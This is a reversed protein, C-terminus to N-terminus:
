QDQSAGCGATDALASEFSTDFSYSVTAGGDVSSMADSWCGVSDGGAAPDINALEEPTPEGEGAAPGLNNLFSATQQQTLFPLGTITVSAGTTGGSFAGFTNFIDEQDIPDIAGFFFLGLDDLDPFHQFKSELFDFQGATIIGGTNAPTITGFPTVYTSNTADYLAPQGPEFLAGNTLEVFFSSQGDFRQEGLTGEYQDLPDNDILTVGEGDFNIGIRGDNFNNGEGTLDVEVNRFQAHIDNDSLTNGSLIVEGGDLSDVFVGVDESDSVNNGDITIFDMGEVEIGNEGSNTVINDVIDVTFVPPEFSPGESSGFLIKEEDFFAFSEASVEIGEDGVNSVTNDAIYVDTVGQVNIGDDLVNNVTNNTVDASTSLYYESYYPKEAVLEQSLFAFEGYYDDDYDSTEIFGTRIHIGDEQNGDITYPEPGDTPATLGINTLNNGDVVVNGSDLIQIGDDEVLNITNGSVTVSTGSNYVYESDYDYDYDYGEEGYFETYTDTEVSSNAIVDRVHIGDAGWIDAGGYYGGLIGSGVNSIVNDTISTRNFGGYWISSAKPGYFGDTSTGLVEIGDDGTVDIVNERIIIADRVGQTFTEIETYIETLEDYNSEYDYTGANDSVGRVHIGDAGFGDPAGYYGEFYVIEGESFFVGVDSINNGEILTRGTPIGYGYPGESLIGRTEYYDDDDYYEDFTSIVEIGDDATDNIINNRIVVAYDEFGEESIFGGESIAQIPGNYYGFGGPVNRVHIGDAGYYDGGGYYYDDGSGANYIENSDILVSQSNSVEIGDDATTDIYNGIIEVAYGGYYDGEGGGANGALTTSQILDIDWIPRRRQELGVGSVSIGDAGVNSTYLGGFGYGANYIENYQILASQSNLVEIGDDDVTDIYNDTIEVAFDNGYGYGGAGAGAFSEVEWPNRIIRQSNYVGRVHIGDAGYGDGEYISSGNGANRVDNGIILTRGTGITGEEFLAVRDERFFNDGVVEIGDDATTNVINGDIVVAYSEFGNGSPVGAGAEASFAVDFDDYDYVEGSVNRVYIGDAGYYDGSGYDEDAGYGANSVINDKILTSSSNTVEIGDDGTTDVTNGIIDVAYGVYNSEGIPGEYDGANGANGIWIPGDFENKYVNSVKIGDHSDHDIDTILVHEGIIETLPEGSWDNGESTWLDERGNGPGFPGSTFLDSFDIAGSITSDEIGAQYVYNEQGDEEGGILVRDSGSVEIGDGGTYKVTNGQIVVSYEGDDYYYGDGANGALLQMMVAPEGGENEGAYVNEVLIGDGDSWELDFSPTEDVILEAIAFAPIADGSILAAISNVDAAVSEGVGAMFIDNGIIQTKGSEHVYIGNEGTVAIENGTIEVSGEGTYEVPPPGILFMAPIDGERGGDVNEVEIGDEGILALRNDYIGTYNGNKVKIGDTLVSSVRNGYIESELINSVLIGNAEDVDYGIHGVTNNYIYTNAGLDTNVMVHIGDHKTFAVNNGYIDSDADSFAFGAGDGSPLDGEYGGVNRVFIGDAGYEDANDEGFGAKFVTNDYISAYGGNEVSIGDDGTTDIFNNSVWVTGFWEGVGEEGAQQVHIGDFAANSIMNGTVVNNTGGEIRVGDNGVTDIMNGSVLVDSSPNVLIGNAVTNMVTNGTIIASNSNAVHIGDEGINNAGDNTGVFNDLVQIGTSDIIGIGDGGTSDVTNNSVINGTTTVPARNGAGGIQIGEGATNTVTNGDILTNNSGEIHIGSTYWLAANERGTDNVTNNTIEYGDSYQSYIGLRDAGDITNDDIIGDGTHDLIAISSAGLTNYIENGTITMFGTGRTVNIGDFGADYITNNTVDTTGANEFLYISNSGTGTTDGITNDDITVGDTTRVTLIGWSYGDVTNGAINHGGENDIRIGAISGTTAINSVINDTVQSDASNIIQIGNTGTNTVTNGDVVVSASPNVLIGNATTNAVTNGSVLANNSGSVHIGDEGINGAAGDTGVSNDAIEVGESNLAFIGDSATTDIDNNVIETGTLGDIIIGRNGADDISNGDITANNSGNIVAIGSAGVRDIDNGEITVGTSNVTVWVGDRAIDSITNGEVTADKSNVLQVGNNFAADANNQLTNDKIVADDSNHVQVGDGGINGAGGTTGVLNNAIVLGATNDANIGSGFNNDQLTNDITNNNIVNVGTVDFFHIGNGGINEFGGNQGILNNQATNDAGGAVYIGDLGTNDITNAAVVVGSSPNVLVGNEGVNNVKNALVVTGNSGDVFIGNQAANEIDNNSIVGNTSDSVQVGNKGITGDLGIENNNVVLGSGSNQVLIGNLATNDIKNSLVTLDNTFLARIGNGMAVGNINNGHLLVTDSPGGVFIGSMTVDDIDNGSVETNTVSELRVGDWEMNYITNDEVTVDDSNVVQVGSGIDGATSTTNTIENDSVEIDSGGGVFIGDGNINNAGGNLGIQNDSVEIDTSDIVNIGNDGTGDIINASVLVDETGDLLIGVDTEVGNQGTITNNSVLTGSGDFIEIGGDFGTKITNGSVVSNGGINKYSIAWHGNVDGNNSNDLVNNIVDVNLSGSVQVSEDDTDEILNDSVEVNTSATVLVGDGSGLFGVFTGTALPHRQGHIYNNSVTVNNAGEVHVGVEGGDVEFGDITVNDATVYFGPSNPSIISEAGRGADDGALGANAGELTLEKDVTVSENYTGAAVSVTAGSAAVDVADNIEADDNLVSVMTATGTIVGTGDIDAGLDIENAHLSAGGAGLTVDAVITIKGNDSSADLSGGNTVIGAGDVYIDNVADLVVTLAGATSVIGGGAAGKFVIQDIAELTLTADGGASKNIETYIEINGSGSGGPSGVTTVYVNTGADLSAEINAVNLTSVGAGGDPRFQDIIGGTGLVENDAGDIIHLDRPDIYWLGGVVDADVNIYEIGSTEIFGGEGTGSADYRGRVIAANQAIMNIEGGDGNTGAAEFESTETAQINQGKVDIQGGKTGNAELKGSVKVVGSDGGSLVIKGGQQSVSSANIVGSMNIVNDVADKAARATMTVVGGEANITGANELLADELDETAAIEVLNDGYLDLTVKSGAAFAVQGLKANIIGNNKVTPAVFAAIGADAVTIQGNLEIAADSMNDLMIKGSGNLFEDENLDGTSAVIGGVDIQSNQGFLVGNRDLIMIRGNANLNGLVKTPDNTNDKAVLMSSASPQAVNVTQGEGIYLNATIGANNTLQNFDTRNNGVFEKNVVGYDTQADGWPNSQASVGSPTLTMAGAAVLATSALLIKRSFSTVPNKTARNM